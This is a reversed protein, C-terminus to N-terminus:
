ARRFRVSDGPRLQGLQDLDEDDVVAVVPYGGTTGSDPGLIIPRGDAPVQVAGPLVPESPLDGARRSLTPGHLRLGVRDSDGTVQWTARWLEEVADTAFWNDRPGLTARVHAAGTPELVAVQDFWAPGCGAASGVDVVDAPRLPRPGLDGLTDYSRSGLVATAAVGGRVAVYVRLGASVTGVDLRQGARVRVAMDQGRRTGDVSVACRAGTVAISVPDDAVVALGGLLCELGAAADHNGVLRNALRLARRDAAGSRAVGWAALGHRGLDQVLTAAGVSEITVRPM